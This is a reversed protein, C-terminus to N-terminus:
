LSWLIMVLALVFSAIKADIDETMEISVMKDAGNQEKNIKAISQQDQMLTYEHNFLKGKRDIQYEGYISEIMFKHHWPAGRRRLVGLLSHHNNKDVAYIDFTPHIQSIQRINIVETRSSDIMVLKTGLKDHQYHFIYATKDKDDSVVFLHSYAVSIEKLRYDQNHTM